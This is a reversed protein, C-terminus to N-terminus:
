HSYHCIPILDNAYGLEIFVFFFFVFELSNLQFDNSPSININNLLCNPQAEKIRAGHPGVCGCGAFRAKHILARKCDPNLHFGELRSNAGGPKAEGSAASGVCAFNVVM